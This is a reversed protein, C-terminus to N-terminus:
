AAEQVSGSQSGQNYYRSIPRQIATVLEIVNEEQQGLMRQEHIHLSSQLEDICMTSVDNSEEISCAVYNFKQTMSRLIKEVAGQQDLEDSHAKTENAITLTTSFYTKVREEEKVVLIEFERRLAELQARKVKTSRQYQKKVSDCIAKASSKDLITQFIDKDIAQFWFDKMRVDQLMAEHEKKQAATPEHISAVRQTTTPETAVPVLM